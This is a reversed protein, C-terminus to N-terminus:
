CPCSQFADSDSAIAARRTFQSGPRLAATMGDTAAPRPPLSFIFDPNAVHSAHPM